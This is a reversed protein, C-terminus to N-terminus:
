KVSTRITERGEVNRGAAHETAVGCRVRFDSSQVSKGILREIADLYRERNVEALDAHGGGDIVVLEGKPAAEAIRQASEIGCVPDESGHLVLLPCELRAAFRARDFERFRGLCWEIYCWALMAFPFSPLKLYTLHAALPQLLQRYAGEAIVGGVEQTGKRAAAAISIGAGMSSGFLVVPKGDRPVQDM